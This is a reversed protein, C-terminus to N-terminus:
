RAAGNLCTISIKLPDASTKCEILMSVIPGIINKM